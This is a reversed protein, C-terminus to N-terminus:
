ARAGVAHSACPTRATAANDVGMSKLDSSDHSGKQPHLDTPRSDKARPSLACVATARRAIEIVVTPQGRELINKM